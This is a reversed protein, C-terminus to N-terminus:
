PSPNSVPSASGCRALGKGSLAVILFQFLFEAQSVIFAAAPSAEMMMGDQTNRSISEQHGFPTKKGRLGRWCDQVVLSRAVALSGAVRNAANTWLPM